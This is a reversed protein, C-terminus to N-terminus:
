YGTADGNLEIVKPIVKKLHGIYRNCKEPTVTAWFEQIAQLLEEKNRPKATTRIYHKMEHWVNEIPNLDPSEPPTTLLPIKKTKLFEQTAKSTHCPANDQQLRGKPLKRQLFPLLHTRLVEQYVASNVSANLLCINTAGKRSIGAWVMVKYPHKARPKPKPATGVKRYSFTRHNELQIMSEDTWVVDEFSNDRNKVAWQLRKEKNVSRILQCYRSGHFTWGLIRRARVITTKSVKYGREELIRVLQTATTEDDLRMQEEIADLMERTLKFPRGSGPLRSITGHEKYKQITTWVAKKSVCFGETALVQSVNGYSVRREFYLQIIRQKCYATLVM